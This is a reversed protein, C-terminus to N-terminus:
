RIGEKALPAVDAINAKTIIAAGTDIDMGAFGFKSTLYLQIIPLYGQLFPQQDLVAAIYGDQIGQATAASLDFGAGCISGAEKGAAKMYAPITATLAGHDFIAAKIDPHSAVFAAFVPIGQAADGNVADSIELYDVKIGAKELAEKVGKTREGRGPQGLLGWLFVSDGSKLGCIDIAGKGLTAGASYNKAGVYGLGATKYKDEAKPLEVNSTTVLIGQKRAQDILTDLAEDGPHGMISIGTPKRAIAESFQQVMKQPNWDSFVYDVQCGTQQAALKAGNYVISAFSDGEAGGPFFVFKKGACGFDAAHAAGYSALTFVAAAAVSKIFRLSM